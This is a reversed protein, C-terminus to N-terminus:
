NVWREVSTSIPLGLVVIMCAMTVVSSVLLASEGMVCQGDSLWGQVCSIPVLIQNVSATKDLPM